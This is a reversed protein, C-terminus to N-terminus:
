SDRIAGDGLELVSSSNSLPHALETNPVLVLRLIQDRYLSLPKNESM